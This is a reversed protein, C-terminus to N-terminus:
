EEKRTAERPIAHMLMGKGLGVVLTYHETERVGKPGGMQMVLAKETLEQGDGVAPSRMLLFFSFSVLKCARLMQCIKPLAAYPLPLRALAQVILSWTPWQNHYKVICPYVPM